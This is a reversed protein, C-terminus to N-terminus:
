PEFRYVFLFSCPVFRRCPSSVDKCLTDSYLCAWQVDFFDIFGPGGNASSRSGRIEFKGGKAIPAFMPVIERVSRELM